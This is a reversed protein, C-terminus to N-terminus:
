QLAPLSWGAECVLPPMGNGGRPSMEAISALPNERISYVTRWAMWHSGLEYLCIAALISTVMPFAEAIRRIRPHEVKPSCTGPQAATPHRPCPVIPLPRRNAWMGVGDGRGVRSWM